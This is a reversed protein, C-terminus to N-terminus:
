VGRSLARRLLEDQLDPGRRRTWGGDRDLEFASVEDSMALEFVEALVARAAPDTVQVLAEVRRDLNRHMLDASGIWFEGAPGGAVSGAGGLAPTGGLAGTGNGFRFIRSHELFRGLISRV